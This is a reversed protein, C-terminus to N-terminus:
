PLAGCVCVCVRVDYAFARANLAETQVLQYKRLFRGVISRFADVDFEIVCLDISSKLAGHLKFLLHIARFVGNEYKDIPFNLLRCATQASFELMHSWVFRNRWEITRHLM